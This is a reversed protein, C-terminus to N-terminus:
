KMHKQLRVEKGANKGSQDQVPYYLGYLNILFGVRIAKLQYRSIFCKGPLVSHFLDFDM